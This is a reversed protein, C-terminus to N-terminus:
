KSVAKDSVDLIDAFEKQTLNHSERMSCILNGFKYYDM